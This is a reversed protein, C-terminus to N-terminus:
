LSNKLEKIDIEYKLKILLNMILTLFNYIDLIGIM